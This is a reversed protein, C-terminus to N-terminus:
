IIHIFCLVHIILSMLEFSKSTRIHVTVHFFISLFFDQYRKVIWILLHAWVTQPIGLSLFLMTSNQLSPNPRVRRLLTQKHLVPLPFSLTERIQNGRGPWLILPWLNERWHKHLCDLQEIFFTPSTCLINHPSTNLINMVYYVKIDSQKTLYLLYNFLQIFM